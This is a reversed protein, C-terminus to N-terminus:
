VTQIQPAAYGVNREPRRCLRIYAVCLGSISWYFIPIVSIPSVTFIILMVAVLTALLSRGLLHEESDMPAFRKLTGFVGWGVILFFGAFLGVGVYGIQLAMLLYSNVIDIIGRGQRMAQMEPTVAFDPSGFWPHRDIVAQASDIMQVRYDINEKDVEGIFPLLDIIKNGGPLASLVGLGLVCAISLVALRKLANRGTVLFVVWLVFAGIWPGRSLPAILGIILLLVAIRQVVKGAARHVFLFFGLGAVLVYGAVIPHTTSGMARLVGGREVISLTDLPIGIAASAARYLHWHKAAEFICIGALLMAAVVMALLAHRFDEVSRISRSIVYYPLVIDIFLYFCQRLFDTVSTDRLTLALFVILFSALAWDALKSVSNSEHPVKLLRVFVPLLLALELLRVHNIAFFYNILGFGGIEIDVPPMALLLVFFLAVKNTTRQSYYALVVVGCIVYLWYNHALFGIATLMLWQNRQVKFATDGLAFAFNRALAFVAGAILLIVILAKIHEPM